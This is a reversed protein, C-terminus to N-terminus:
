SALSSNVGNVPCTALALPAAWATGVVGDLLAWLVVSATTPKEPSSPLGEAASPVVIGAPSVVPASGASSSVGSVAV